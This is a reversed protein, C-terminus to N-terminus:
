EPAIDASRSSATKQNEQELLNYQGILVIRGLLSRENINHNRMYTQLERDYTALRPEYIDTYFRDLALFQGDDYAYYEFFDMNQALQQTDNYQGPHNFARKFLGHPRKLRRIVPLFGNLCVEYFTQNLRKDVLERSLSIFKRQKSQAFDFWEFQKVQYASYTRIHGNPQRLLVMEASWNYSLDGKLTVNDFLALEGSYWITKLPKSSSISVFFLVFITANLVNRIMETHWTHGTLHILQHKNQCLLYFTAKEIICRKLQQNITKNDSLFYHM